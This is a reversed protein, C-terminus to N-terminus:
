KSQSYELGTLGVYVVQALLVAVADKPHEALAGLQGQDWQWGRDPSCDVRRDAIADPPRDQEVAVPAPHISVFFSRVAAMGTSAGIM